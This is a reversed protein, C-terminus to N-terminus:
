WSLQLGVLLQLSYARFRRSSAPLMGWVMWWNRIVVIHYKRQSTRRESIIMSRNFFILFKWAIVVNIDNIASLPDAAFLLLVERRCQGTLLNDRVCIQVPGFVGSFATVSIIPTKKRMIGRHCRLFIHTNSSSCSNKRHNNNHAFYSPTKSDTVIKQVCTPVYM